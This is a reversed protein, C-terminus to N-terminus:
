VMLNCNLTTTLVNYAAELKISNAKGFTAEINVDALLGLIQPVNMSQTKVPSSAVFPNYKSKPPAENESLSM